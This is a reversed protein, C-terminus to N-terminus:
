WTLAVVGRPGDWAMNIKVLLDMGILVDVNPTSFETQPGDLGRGFTITHSAM